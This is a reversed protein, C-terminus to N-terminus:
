GDSTWELGGDGCSQGNVEESMSDKVVRWGECGIEFLEYVLFLKCNLWCLMGGNDCLPVRNESCLERVVVPVSDIGSCQWM